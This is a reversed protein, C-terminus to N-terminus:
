KKFPTTQKTRLESNVSHIKIHMLIGVPNGEIQKLKM